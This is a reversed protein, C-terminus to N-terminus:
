GKGPQRALLRLADRRSQGYTHCRLSAAGLVKHDGEDRTGIVVRQGCIRDGLAGAGDRGEALSVAENSDACLDLADSTVGRHRHLADTARSSKGVEDNHSAVADPEVEDDLRQSRLSQQYLREVDAARSSQGRGLATLAVNCGDM